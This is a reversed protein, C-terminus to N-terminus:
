GPDIGTTPPFPVGQLAQAVRHRLSEPVQERCKISVVQLLEYEFEYAEYCPPCGDLHAQVLTKQEVTMEGDLFLYLAEVAEECGGGEGM